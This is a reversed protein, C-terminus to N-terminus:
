IKKKKQTTEQPPLKEQLNMYDCIKKIDDGLFKDIEKKLSLNQWGYWNRAEISFREGREESSKWLSKKLESGLNSENIYRFHSTIIEKLDNYSLLDGQINEIVKEDRKKSWNNNLYAYINVKSNIYETTKKINEVTDWAVQSLSPTWEYIKQNNLDWYNFNIAHLTPYNKYFNVLDKVIKLKLNQLPTFIESDMEPLVVNLHETSEKSLQNELLNFMNEQFSTPKATSM